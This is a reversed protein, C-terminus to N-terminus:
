DSMLEKLILYYQADSTMSRQSYGTVTLLDMRTKHAIVVNRKPIVTIFHGAYGSATYAGEFDPNDYFNEFLWWMYSYSFQVPSSRDLGYRKNVTDRPTVTTTSRKVWDKSILQKGNWEGEQLMLQGIKAMDRTSVHIHYASHHSKQKNVTRKQNKINWDEFGLPIALQEEINEYVSKGSKKELITGAVNFDWNNYLFYDGPTMSGRSKVNNVDYGGNAPLHFVGSRATIIHNVTAQKELPLLGDVDDIGISGITENLDITGNDVYKGYLMSLVSKRCSAIYSLNEINGYDYVVKGNELVIMGTTAAHEKIYTTVEDLKEQTFSSNTLVTQEKLPTGEFSASSRFWNHASTFSLLFTILALVLIAIILKKM